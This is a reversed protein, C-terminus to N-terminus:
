LFNLSVTCMCTFLLNTNNVEVHQSWIKISCHFVPLCSFTIWCSLKSNYSQAKLGLTFLNMKQVKFHSFTRQTISYHMQYTADNIDQTKEFLLIFICYCVYSSLWCLIGFFPDNIRYPFSSPTPSKSDFYVSFLQVSSELFIFM